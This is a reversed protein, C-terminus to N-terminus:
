NEKKKKKKKKFLDFRIVHVQSKFKNLNKPIKKIKKKFKIQGALGV